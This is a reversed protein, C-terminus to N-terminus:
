MYNPAEQYSKRLTWICVCTCTYHQQETVWDYCVRSGSPSCYVLDEQGEGDGLTQGLEHEDYQHHGGAIEDESARKEQAWDKGADPDKGILWSNADSAWFVPAESWGKWTINLTSKGPNVLKIEKSDLPSEPTKELVVTWFCLNKPAGGEKHDLEWLQVHGTPLGCGQRCSGKDAFYHRQKGVCQTATDKSEQWSAIM